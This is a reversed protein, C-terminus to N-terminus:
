LARPRAVDEFFSRSEAASREPLLGGALASRFTAQQQPLATPSGSLFGGLTGLGQQEFPSLAAVRQGEFSPLGKGIRENFFSGLLDRAQEQLPDLSSKSRLKGPEGFISGSISSVAGKLSSGLSSGFGM